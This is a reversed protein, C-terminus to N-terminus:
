RSKGTAVAMLYGDRNLAPIGEEVMPFLEIDEHGAMFHASYRDAVEHYRHSELGPNLYALADQLGLGIVHRAAEPGPVPLDLDRFAAQLSAVIHGASAVLTGDWYFALLAFRGPM